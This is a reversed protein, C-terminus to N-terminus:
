KVFEMKLVKPPVLSLVSQKEGTQKLKYLKHLFINSNRTSFIITFFECVRNRSNLFHSGQHLNQKNRFLLNHVYGKLLVNKSTILSSIHFYLSMFGKFLMLALINSSVNYISLM